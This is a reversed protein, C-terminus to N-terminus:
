GLFRLGVRLEPLEPIQSQHSIGTGAWKIPKITVFGLRRNIEDENLGPPYFVAWTTSLKNLRVYKNFLAAAEDVEVATNNEWSGDISVTAKGKSMHVDYENWDIALDLQARCLNNGDMGYISAQSIWKNELGLEIAEISKETINVTRRLAIRIQMKLLGMRAFTM